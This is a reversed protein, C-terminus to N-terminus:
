IRNQYNVNYNYMFAATNKPTNWGAGDSLEVLLFPQETYIIGVDNFVDNVAGYKHAVECQTIGAKFYQKPSALKMYNIILAYTEENEYLHKLTNLLATANIINRSLFAKDNELGATGFYKSIELRYAAYSGAGIKRQLAESLPNNSNVISHYRVQSLTYGSLEDSEKYTGDNLRETLVMNLPLKYTSAATFWKEANYLITEGTVTNYYAMAFNKESYRNASLFEEFREDFKKNFAGYKGTPQSPIYECKGTLVDTNIGAAGAECLMGLLAALLLGFVFSRTKM